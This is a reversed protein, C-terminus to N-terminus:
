LMKDAYLFWKVIETLSSSNVNHALLDNKM